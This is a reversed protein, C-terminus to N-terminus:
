LTETNSTSETFYDLREYEITGLHRDITVTGSGGENNEYGDHYHEILMNTLLEAADSFSTAVLPESKSTRWNWHTFGPIAVSAKLATDPTITIRDIQGSDGCGSYEVSISDVGHVAMAALMNRKVANFNPVDKTIM